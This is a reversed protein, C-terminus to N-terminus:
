PLEAEPMIRLAQQGVRDRLIPRLWDARAATDTLLAVGGLRTWGLVGPMGSMARLVNTPNRVWSDAPVDVGGDRPQVLLRVGDVSDALVQRVLLALESTQVSLLVQAQGQGPTSSVSVVGPLSMFATAYRDLIPLSAPMATIQM